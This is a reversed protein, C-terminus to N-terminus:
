RTELRAVCHEGSAVLTSKAPRQLLGNVVGDLYFHFLTCLDGGPTLGQARCADRIACRGFSLEATRGDLRFTMDFGRVLQATLAQLVSQPTPEPLHLPMRAAAQRGAARGVPATAGGMLDHVTTAFISLLFSVETMAREHDAVTLAAARTAEGAAAAVGARGTATSM